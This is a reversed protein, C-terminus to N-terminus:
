CPTPHGFYKQFTIQPPNNEPITLAQIAEASEASKLVNWKPVEFEHDWFLSNQLLKFCDAEKGSGMLALVKEEPFVISPPLVHVQHFQIPDHFGVLALFALGPYEQLNKLCQQQDSGFHCLALISGM